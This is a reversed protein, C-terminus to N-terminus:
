IISVVWTGGLSIADTPEHQFHSFSRTIPDYLDLGSRTGIWLVGFRDEYLESVLSDSISSPDEADHKFIEFDYGDYKNLGDETGLWIFGRRDQLITLVANQSLGDEVTIRDFRASLARSQHMSPTPLKQVETRNDAFGEHIILTTFFLVLVAVALLRHFSIGIQNFINQFIPPYYPQFGKTGQSTFSEHKRFGGWFVKRIKGLKRLFRHKHSHTHQLNPHIM